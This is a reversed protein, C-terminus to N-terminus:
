ILVSLLSQSLVYQHQYIIDNHSAVDDTAVPRYNEVRLTRVWTVYFGSNRTQPNPNRLWERLRCVLLRAQRLNGVRITAELRTNFAQSYRDQASVARSDVM